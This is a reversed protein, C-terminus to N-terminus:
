MVPNLDFKGDMELFFLAGEKADSSTSHKVGGPVFLFDGPGVRKEGTDDKYIYAGKIVVIRVDHTHTHMGAEFGPVFRTLGGFPGTEHDGWLSTMSAGETVEKFKAKDGPMFILDKKGPQKKPRERLGTQQQRNM